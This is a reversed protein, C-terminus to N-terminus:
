KKLELKSGSSRKDAHLISLMISTSLELRMRVCLSKAM